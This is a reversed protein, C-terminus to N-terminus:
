GGFGAKRGHEDLGVTEIGIIEFAPNEGRAHEEIRRVLPPAVMTPAIKRMFANIEAKLAISSIMQAAQTLAGSYRHHV